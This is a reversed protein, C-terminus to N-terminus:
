ASAAIAEGVIACAEEIEADSIVLPPALMIAQVTTRGIPTPCSYVMLGRERCARTITAAGGALPELTDRDSVLEVGQLLGMGRVQAVIPSDATVEELRRRLLAGKRQAEAILGEDQIIKIVESAVACGLPYGSFTHGWPFGADSAEFVRKIEGSALMGSFPVIGSTVGKAYTIVDPVVGFHDVAFWSGTRGFATITEDCILLVDHRDCIERVRALYGDPPVVAAGSAGTIPELFVAAIHESGRQLIVDEIAGAAWETEDAASRRGRIDANPAPVCPYKELVPEFAKRWRSGSLSLAGLTSGHFSPIRSILDTKTGQGRYQWYLLALHIASEVSESGSSNFFCWADDMPAIERLQGALEVMPENSFSFRYTFSITEVQQKVREVLRPHCHGLSMVMAGGCADLWSRGDSDWIRAGSARVAVPLVLGPTATLSFDSSSVTM